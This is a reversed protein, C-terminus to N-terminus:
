KGVYSFVLHLNKFKPNLMLSLMNHIKKGEYTRLFSLFFDLVGFM